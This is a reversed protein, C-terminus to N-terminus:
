TLLQFNKKELFSSPQGYALTVPSLLNVLSPKAFIFGLHFVLYALTLLGLFFNHKGFCPFSYCWVLLFFYNNHSKTKPNKMSNTVNFFNKLCGNAKERFEYQIM